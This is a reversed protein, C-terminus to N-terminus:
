LNTIKRRLSIPAFAARLISTFNVSPRRSTFHLDAFRFHANVVKKEHRLEFFDCFHM